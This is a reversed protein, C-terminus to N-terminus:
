KPMRRVIGHKPEFLEGERKMREIIEEVRAEEVGREKAADVLDELPINSGYKTELEKILERVMIIRSRHSTSIGTVIRDIDLEGTETDLGVKQLCYKMIKIAREADKREVVNSLRLKASAQALRVLAELQRASIPIPRIGGEEDEKKRQSRLDVFFSKIQNMAEKSLKPKCYKKAYAIYNRMIEPPIEPIVEEPTRFTKLIHSALKEDKEKNPLDRIPFILDFRSILTPPMNIQEAVPVYPDFRGLKPNAAALITTQANLTSHINAKSITITQQEMAEHMAVRDEREMKDIEDVCCIGKNALVMAGAELSWGRLFEDKVVAATLGAGTAGKGSVYRAKPAVASVYKLLQSKAVGPDGILLVHIDGRINTKDPRETKSGGFLQLIIAEKIVNYGFISPAISNILKKDINPDKSMEKILKKDENTLKLEEFEKESIEINNAQMILDFRTSTTGRDHIPIEKVIGNLIIRMGPTTRKELKPEVLDGTLFISLRRPQVDANLQEPAEEVVIRQTDVLKKDIIKFSGKKGCSCVTPTKVKEEIQKVDIQTGCSPCEFTMITSVPRVDSTQRILGEISILKQLHKSRIDRILIRRSEPINFIRVKLEADSSMEIRKLAIGFLNLAEEPNEILFDTIDPSFKDLKKFDIGISTEGSNIIESLEQLYQKTVFEEFKEITREEFSITKAEM